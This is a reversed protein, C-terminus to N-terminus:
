EITREIPRTSAISRRTLTNLRCQGYKAHTAQPELSIAFAERARPAAIMELAQATFADMGALDGRADIDRRLNDFCRLLEKRNALRERAIGRSLVFKALEPGAPQLLPRLIM